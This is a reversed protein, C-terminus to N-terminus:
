QVGDTLLAPMNSPHFYVRATAAKGCFTGHAILAVNPPIEKLTINGRDSVALMSNEGAIGYRAVDFYPHTATPLPRARGTALDVATYEDRSGGDWYSNINMGSEPFVAIGAKHKKYGIAALLKKIEPATKLDVYVTNM